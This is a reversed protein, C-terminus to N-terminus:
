IGLEKSLLLIEPRSDGRNVHQPGFEQSGQYCFFGGVRGRGEQGRQFRHHPGKPVETYDYGPTQDAEHSPGGELAPVANQLRHVRTDRLLLFNGKSRGGEEAVAGKIALSLRHNSLPNPGPNRAGSLILAM